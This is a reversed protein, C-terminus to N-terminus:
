LLLITGVQYIVVVIRLPPYVICAVEVARQIITAQEIKRGSVLDGLLEFTGMCPIGATLEVCIALAEEVRISGKEILNAIASM